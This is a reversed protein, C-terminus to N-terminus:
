ISNTLARKSIPRNISPALLQSHRRSGPSTTGCCLTMFNTAKWWRSAHQLFHTKGCGLMGTLEIINSQLTLITEVRLLDFDRGVMVTRPEHGLKDRSTGLAMTAAGTSAPLICSPDTQIDQEYLVPILYDDVEVEVSLVATRTRIAHLRRRTQYM